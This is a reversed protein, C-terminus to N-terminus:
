KPFGSIEQFPRLEFEPLISLLHDFIDSQIAEFRVLSTEKCFAYIEIPLGKELPQLQRVLCTMSDGAHLEERSDLYAEAYACFAGVNTLRRSQISALATDNKESLDREKAQISDSILDISRFREIMEPTCVKISHLDIFIARKIRRGGVVYMNRFNRFSNSLVVHTPINTITNDFNKVKITSLSIHEVVGDALYNPMEIWDGVEIMKHVVMQVSAVFGLLSDRFVLMIVATFVGLGGVLYMPSRGLIAACVLVVGCTAVTRWAFVAIGSMSTAPRHPKDGAPSKDRSEGGVDSDDTQGDDAQMRRFVGECANIYALGVLTFAFALYAMGARWVYTNWQGFTDIYPYAHISSEDNAPFLGAALCILLAPAFHALRSFFHEERLPAFWPSNSAPMIRSAFQSPKSVIKATAMRTAVRFVFLVAFYSFIAVVVILLSTIVVTYRKVQLAYDDEGRRTQMEHEVRQMVPRLLPSAPVIPELLGLTVADLEGTPQLNNQIQFMMVLVYTQEGYIGAPHLPEEPLQLWLDWVNGKGPPQGAVFED